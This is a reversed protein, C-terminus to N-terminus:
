IDFTKLWTATLAMGEELTIRPQWGLLQKAKDMRYTIPRTIYQAAGFVDYPSGSLRALFSILSCIPKLILTPPLPINITRPNGAIHAYHSLFDRWSPAPDPAAHFANGPAALHTAAIVLLDVVDDIYIPHAHGNGGAFLPVPYRRCLNYLTQSWFVSRPGYVFAPRISVTPLGVQRAYDWVAQEGLSKTCMYYDDRPPRHPHSEDIPGNLDYGYVAVSSVHVLRQAGVKYAAEAVHCTGEVNTAHQRALSGKGVAAVHFVVDCGEACRLTLPADQIDGEVVEAGAEALTAGNRAARCMARVAVGDHLLRQTLAAGIFGNAGTVLARQM